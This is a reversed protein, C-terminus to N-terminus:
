KEEAERVGWKRCMIEGDDFWRRKPKGM